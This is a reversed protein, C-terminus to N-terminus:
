SHFCSIRIFKTNINSFSSNNLNNSETITNINTKQPSNNRMSNIRNQVKNKGNKLQKIMNLLYTTNEGTKNKEIVLNEYIQIQQNINM